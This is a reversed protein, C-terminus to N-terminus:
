WTRMFGPEVALQAVRGSLNLALPSSPSSTPSVDPLGGVMSYEAAPVCVDCIWTIEGILPLFLSITAKVTLTAAAFVVLAM